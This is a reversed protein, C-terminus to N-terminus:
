RTGVFRYIDLSAGFTNSNNRGERSLHLWSFTIHVMEFKLHLVRSYEVFRARVILLALAVRQAATGCRSYAVRVWCELPGATALLNSANAIMSVKTLNTHGSVRGPM